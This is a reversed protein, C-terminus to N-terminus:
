KITSLLFPINAIINNNIITINNVVTPPHNIPLNNNAFATQLHWLLTLFMILQYFYKSM